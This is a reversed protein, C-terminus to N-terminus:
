IADFDAEENKKLQQFITSAGPGVAFFNASLKRIKPKRFTRNGVVV